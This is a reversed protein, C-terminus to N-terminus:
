VSPTKVCFLSTNIMTLKGCKKFLRIFNVLYKLIKSGDKTNELHTRRQKLIDLDDYEKIAIYFHTLKFNVLSIGDRVEKM